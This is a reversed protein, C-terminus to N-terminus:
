LRWHDKIWPYMAQQNPEWPPTLGSTFVVKAETPARRGPILWKLKTLGDAQSWQGAPPYLRFSMWGQDSGLYGARYALAPSLLPDFDQWIHPLAGTRLLYIGGAIKHWGFRLECWGVFDETRELLPALPGCIVVDIDIQLIQQGLAAAAEPSFNWLRRYCSPFRGGQPSAVGSFDVPMAISEIRPDLGTPDDTVCVFRHPRDYWRAVMARLVNVHHSTFKRPSKPETWKWTVVSIM